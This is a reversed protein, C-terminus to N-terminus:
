LSKWWRLEVPSVDLASKHRRHAPEADHASVGNGQMFVHLNTCWYAFGQRKDFPRKSSAFKTFATCLAQLSCAPDSATRALMAAFQVWDKQSTASTLSLGRWEKWERACHEKLPGLRPDSTRTNQTHKAHTKPVPLICTDIGEFTMQSGNYYSTNYSSKIEIDRRDKIEGRDRIPEVGCEVTPEVAPQDAPQDAPQIQALNDVGLESGQQRQWYDWDHVRLNGTADRDIWHASILPNVVRSLVRSPNVQYSSGLHFAIRKVDPLLGDHEYESACCWLKFLAAQLNDPLATFKPHTSIRHQVKFWPLKKRGV